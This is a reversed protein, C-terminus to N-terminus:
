IMIEFISLFGRGRTQSSQQAETPSSTSLGAPVLQELDPPSGLSGAMSQLTPSLTTPSSTTLTPSPPSSLPPRHNAHLTFLNFLLSQIPHHHGVDKIGVGV